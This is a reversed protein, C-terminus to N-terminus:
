LAKLADRGFTFARMLGLLGLIILIVAAVMLLWFGSWGPVALVAVGGLISIIGYAVSWGQKRSAGSETIAMIGEVIWAVGVVIAIILLLTASAVAVDRLAIVGGVVLLTGLLVNLVRHGTGLSRGFIGLVLRVGGTIVLYIGFLFALVPITHNPWILLLAGVIVAVAGAIGFTLRVGNIARKALGAAELRLADRFEDPSSPISM